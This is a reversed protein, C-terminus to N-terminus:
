FANRTNIKGNGYEISSNKEALSTGPRVMKKRSGENLLQKLQSGLTILEPCGFFTLDRCEAGVPLFIRCHVILRMAWIFPEPLMQRLYLLAILSARPM